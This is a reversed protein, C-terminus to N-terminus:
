PKRNLGTFLIVDSTRGGGRAMALRSGDRSFAFGGAGGGPFQTIQTAAGGELSQAWINGQYRYALTHGEPVWTLLDGPPTPTLLRRSTCGPLDCLMWTSPHEPTDNGYLLLKGDASVRSAISDIRDRSKLNLFERVRKPVTTQGKNPFSSTPM